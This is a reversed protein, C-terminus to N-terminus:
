EGLRKNLATLTDKMEHPTWSAGLWAEPKQRERAIHKYFPDWDPCSKELASLINGPARASATSPEDALYGTHILALSGMTLEFLYHGLLSLGITRSTRTKAFMLLNLHDPRGLRYAARCVIDIAELLPKTGILDDRIRELEALAVEAYKDRIRRQLERAAIM